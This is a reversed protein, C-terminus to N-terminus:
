VVSKRDPSLEPISTRLVPEGDVLGLQRFAGYSDGVIEHYEAPMQKKLSQATYLTGSEGNATFPNSCTYRTLRQDYSVIYKAFVLTWANLAEQVVM